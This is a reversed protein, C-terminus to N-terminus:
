LKKKLTGIICKLYQHAGDTSWIVKKLNGLGLLYLQNNEYKLTLQRKTGQDHVNFVNKCCARLSIICNYGKDNIWRGVLKNIDFSSQTLTQKKMSEVKRELCAHKHKLTVFSSNLLNYDSVLKNKQKKMEEYRTEYADCVQQVEKQASLTEEYLNQTEILEQMLESQKTEAQDLQKLLGTNTSKLSDKVINAQVLEDDLKKNSAQLEEIQKILGSVNKNSCLMNIIEVKLDDFRNKYEQNIDDFILKFKDIHSNMILKYLKETKTDM